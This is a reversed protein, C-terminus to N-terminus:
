LHACYMVCYIFGLVAEQCTRYHSWAVFSTLKEFSDMTMLRVQRKSLGPCLAERSGAGVIGNVVWRCRLARRTSSRARTRIPFTRSSSNLRRETRRRPLSSMPTHLTREPLLSSVPRRLSSNPIPRASRRVRVAGHDRFYKEKTLWSSYNPKTEFPIHLKGM